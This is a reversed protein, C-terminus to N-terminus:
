GRGGVRRARPKTTATQFPSAGPIPRNKMPCIRKSSTPPPATPIPPEKARAYAKDRVFSRNHVEPGFGAYVAYARQNAQGSLWLQRDSVCFHLAARPHEVPVIEPEKKGNGPM